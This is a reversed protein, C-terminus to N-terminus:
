DIPMSTLNNKFMHNDTSQVTEIFDRMKRLVPAEARDYVDGSLLTLLDARYEDQKIFYTFMPLLKYYLRIFDYWIQVGSRLRAEYTKFAERSVDGTELAKSIAETAFSASALAVSIGSSFIPDVFRAADGVVLFGDGAFDKLSYSYDGETEFDKVQRAGNMAQCLTPHSEVQSHFWGDIDKRSQKFVEKEAVVGVSTVDESIPIQWGWGREAGKLFFIHIYDAEATGSIARDVGKFWGHITFQNFIPDNKKIRLQQGLLTSRGTADVIIRADLQVTKDAIKCSVGSARGDTFLVEHVHLGQYVKSGLEVARKLLMLDFKSRDVHYSYKQDVGKQPIERFQISVVGSGSPPHWAAGYKKVYGGNNLDDIVGIEKLYRTTIPVLSEGVHQRPHIAREIIINSIGAISLFCGLASGAPGGGVIIVDNNM